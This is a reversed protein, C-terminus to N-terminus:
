LRNSYLVHSDSPTLDIIIPLREVAVFSSSFVDVRQEFDSSPFSRTRSHLFYRNKSGTCMSNGVEFPSM